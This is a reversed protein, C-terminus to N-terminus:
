VRKVDGAPENKVLYQSDRAMSNRLQEALEPNTKRLTLYTRFVRASELTISDLIPPDAVIEDFLQHVQQPDNLKEGTIDRMANLGATVGQTYELGFDTIYSTGASSPDWYSGEGPAGGGAYNHTLEHVLSEVGGEYHGGLRDEHTKPFGHYDMYQEPVWKGKPNKRLKEPDLGEIRRDEIYTGVTEDLNDTDLLVPQNRKDFDILNRRPRVKTKNKNWMKLEDDWEHFSPRDREFNRRQEAVLAAAGGPVRTLLQNNVSVPTVYEGRGQDDRTTPPMRVPTAKFKAKGDQFLPKVGPDPVTQPIGPAAVIPTVRPKVPLQDPSPDAATKEHLYGQLFAQTKITM